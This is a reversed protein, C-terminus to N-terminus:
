GDYSSFYGNKIMDFENISSDDLSRYIRAYVDFGAAKIENVADVKTAMWIKRSLSFIPLIYWRSARAMHIDTM